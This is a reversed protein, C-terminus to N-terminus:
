RVQHHTAQRTDSTRVPLTVFRAPGHAGRRIVAIVFRPLRLMRRWRWPQRILRHLWELGRRRMWPPARHTTGAIFDFSGGVGMAVRPRLRPLNRAIWKDQNPAGYAVLLIDASSANILAVIVDEESPDPSGAYVGVIQLGAHRAQLQQAAAEAVGPAAGLFYLKWGMRAAREAILPVGDSGTVRQPLSHKLWRAAWLLGVGDPICLDARCLINYFHNDTQAAMLFEPNVTCIQRAQDGTIWEAIQDLLGDFTIAHTPVGLLTVTNWREYHEITPKEAITRLDRLDQDAANLVAEVTLAKMCTRAACGDRLGMTNGVYSCPSCKAGMRVVQAAASWPRWAGHNSPGFLATIPTGSAAAIQMVGSDAGYYHECRSLVAALQNLTTHGALNIPTHQMLAALEDARDHIGGVIVIQVNPRAALQDALAAFKEVEWRRALSYGGSGPHIAILRTAAPLDAFHEAAWAHDADAIGIRLREDSATAGFLAAVDLWYRVEHKVGFGQDPARDTLFWGRGNELGFRQPARSALTLLAHKLAGLRTTLHRFVFTAHYKGRWLRTLLALALRANPPKLLQKPQDFLAKDFTIVQDALGTHMLVPAAHPTTLVDIQAAPYTERLAALAPTITILDGIDALNIILLKM